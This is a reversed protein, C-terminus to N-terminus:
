KCLLSFRWIARTKRFHFGDIPGFKEVIENINNSVLPYDTIDLCFQSHGIGTLSNLTEQLRHKDRGFIIVRSGCAAVKQSIARGIGGSAGTVLILKGTLDIM